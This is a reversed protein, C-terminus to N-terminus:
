HENARGQLRVLKQSLPTPIQYRIAQDLLAGHESSLESRLATQVSKELGRLVAGIVAFLFTSGPMGLDVHELARRLDAVALPQREVLENLIPAAFRSGVNEDLWKHVLEQVQSDGYRWRVLGALVEHGGRINIHKAMFITARHAYRRGSSKRLQTSYIAVATGPNAALLLWRDLLAFFRKNIPLSGLSWLVPGSVHDAIFRDVFKYGLEILQKSAKPTIGKALVEGAERTELHRELWELALGVHRGRIGHGLAQSLFRLLIPDPEARKLYTVAARAPADDVYKGVSLLAVAIETRDQAESDLNALLDQAELRLDSQSVCSLKGGVSAGLWLRLLSSGLSSPRIVRLEEYVADFVDASTQDSAAALLKSEILRRDFLAGLLSRAAAKRGAKLQAALVHALDRGLKSGLSEAGVSRVYLPWIVEAHALRLGDPGPEVALEMATWSLAFRAVDDKTLLEGPAAFGLANAAAASRIKEFVETDALVDKSIGDASKDALGSMFAALSRGDQAPAGIPRELRACAWQRFKEYEAADPAPVTVRTIALREAGHIAEYDHTTGCVILGAYPTGRYFSDDILKDLGGRDIHAPLDDLFGIEAQETDPAWKPCSTLWGRLEEANLLETVSALRASSVLVEMLQLLLISKGDGPRGDIWLVPLKQDDVTFNDFLNSLWLRAVTVIKSLQEPRDTFREGVLDDLRPRVRTFLASIGSSRRTFCDPALLRGPLRRELNAAALIDAVVRHLATQLKDRNRGDFADFIDGLAARAVRDADRVGGILLTRRLSLRPNSMVQIPQHEVFLSRVLALRAADYPEDDLFIREASLEAISYDSDCRECVIKFEVQAALEPSCLSIIEYAERIAAGLSSATLTRKVQTLSLKDGALLFDSLSEIEAAAVREEVLFARVFRELAVTTQIAFGSLAWWGGNARHPSRSSWLRKLEDRSNAFTSASLLAGGDKVTFEM